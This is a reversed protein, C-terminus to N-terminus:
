DWKRRMSGISIGPFSKEVIFSTIGKAGKSSGYGGNGYINAIPANTIYHKTGNM